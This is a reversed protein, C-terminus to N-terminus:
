EEPGPTAPGGPGALVGLNLEAITTSKVLDFGLSKDIPATLPEIDPPPVPPAPPPDIKVTSEVEADIKAM